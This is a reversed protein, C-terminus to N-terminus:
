LYRWCNGPGGFFFMNGPVGGTEVYPGVYYCEQSTAYPSLNESDLDQIKNEKNVYKVNSFYCSKNAGEIPYHGSGM